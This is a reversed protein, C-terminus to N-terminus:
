GRRIGRAPLVPSTLKLTLPNKQPFLVTKFFPGRGGFGEREWFKERFCSIPISPEVGDVGIGHRQRALITDSSPHMSMAKLRRIQWAFFYILGTPLPTWGQECKRSQLSRRGRRDMCFIWNFVVPSFILIIGIKNPDYDNCPCDLVGTGVPNTCVVVNTERYRRHTKPSPTGLVQPLWHSFSNSFSVFQAIRLSTAGHDCM